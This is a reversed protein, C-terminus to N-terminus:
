RTAGWILFVVLAALALWAWVPLLGSSTRVVEMAQGRQQEFPIPPLIIGGMGFPWQPSQSQQSM